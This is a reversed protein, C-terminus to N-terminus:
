QGRTYFCLAGFAASTAGAMAGGPGKTGDIANGVFGLVADASNLIGGSLLVDDLARGKAKLLLAGLTINRTGWARTMARVEPNPNLRYSKLLVDPAAVALLGFGVSAGGVANVLVQKNM